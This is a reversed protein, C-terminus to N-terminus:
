PRVLGVHRGTSAMLIEFDDLDATLIEDGDTALLALAADIVDATGSRGLLEGAARGLDRDLPRVDTGALVRALRAQRPGGRWVQGVIGGHTVPVEGSRELGKLRVWMARENRELAVFAAADLM